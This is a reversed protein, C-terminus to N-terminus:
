SNTFRTVRTSIKDGEIQTMQTFGKLERLNRQNASINESRNRNNERNNDANIQPIQTFGRIERPNRLNVRIPAFRIKNEGRNNDADMQTM